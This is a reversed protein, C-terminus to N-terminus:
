RTYHGKFTQRNNRDDWVTLELFHKGTGTRDDFYHTIMDNKYDYEFLVWQGDITAEYRLDRAKGIAPFNDKIAFRMKKKGTMYESFQIASIEPAVTDIQLQYDGFQRVKSELFPGRWTGGATVWGDENDHYAVLAKKRQHIPVEGTLRITFYKHAPEQARHVKVVPFPAINGSDVSLFLDTNQYVTEAPLIIEFHKNKFQYSRDYKLPHRALDQSSRVNKKTVFFSLGASNGNFDSAEVRVKKTPTNMGIIGDDVLEDYMSLHNGPLRFCRNYVGNDDYKEKYDVHANLYRTEHFAFADFTIEFTKQDDVFMKLQYVGNLNPIFNMLDYVKIGIGVRNGHVFVTDGQSPIQHRKSTLISHKSSLEYTILHRIDPSLNDVVNFDFQLPNIPKQNATNRVEFHLHPGTSGGSNGLYGILDGQEFVFQDAAPFVNIEFKNKEYQIRRVYAAIEDEFKQLHAYVTTYGNPHNIYLANGYGSKQVKIRSVYGRAPAYIQDGSGGNSSKIDIGSHFHNSRLEGFTGSLRLPFRVPAVFDVESTFHTYRAGCLLVTLAFFGILTVLIYHKM